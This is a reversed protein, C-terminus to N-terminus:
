FKVKFHECAQGTRFFVLGIWFLDVTVTVQPHQKIEEWAEKMGKSWYIDDFIIVSQEHVKELAQKFYALTAEKRHNGDIFLFDVQKRAALVSPLLVDFNGTIIEVNDLGLSAINARAINATEPCGEISLVSSQPVARALYSTTIGLCTGLEIIEKPAFEKALRHLLRALAAPKLANGAIQRVKRSKKNNVHSGAGLDTVQIEREDVLLEKRLREIGEYEGRPKFDYIVQDILNYVFPSHVGHRTKAHLRHTIYSKVLQLNFM